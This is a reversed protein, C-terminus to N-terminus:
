RANLSAELAQTLKRRHSESFGDATAVIRGDRGIVITTPMSSINFRSPSVGSPDHLVTLDLEQHQILKLADAINEDLSVTIVKVGKTSYEREVGELFQHSQRCQACWSAWFDLVVVKGRTHGIEGQLLAGRPLAPAPEGVTAASAPLVLLLFLFTSWCLRGRGGAM